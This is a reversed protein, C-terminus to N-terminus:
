DEEDNFEPIEMWAVPRWEKYTADSWMLLFSSYSNEGMQYGDMMWWGDSNYMGNFIAGHSTLVIVCKRNEPMREKISIWEGM